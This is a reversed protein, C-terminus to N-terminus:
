NWDIWSQFNFTTQTTSHTQSNIQQEQIQKIGKVVQKVLPKENQELGELVPIVVRSTM